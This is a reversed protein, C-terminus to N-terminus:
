FIKRNFLSILGATKTPDGSTAIKAATPAHYGKSLLDNFMTVEDAALGYKSTIAKKVVASVVQDYARVGRKAGQVALNKAGSALEGTTESINAPTLHEAVDALPFSGAAGQALAQPLTSVPLRSFASTFARAGKMVAEPGFTAAAGEAADLPLEFTRLPTQPQGSMYEGAAQLGRGILPSAAMVAKSIGQTVPEPIPNLAATLGIATGYDKGHQALDKPIGQKVGGAFTTPIRGSEFGSQQDAIRYIAEDSLSAPARFKVTRGDKAQVEYDALKIPKSAEHPLATDGATGRVGAVVESPTAGQRILAEAKEAPTALQGMFNKADPLTPRPENYISSGFLDTILQQIEADSPQTHAPLTKTDAM